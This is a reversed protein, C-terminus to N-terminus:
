GPVGEVAKRLSLDLKKANELRQAVDEWNFVNFLAEFFSKKDNKYQLYFAHEWADIVLLPVGGMTVDSQHDHIITTGLRKCLPDWVLAGWGSGMTGMACAVIQAKFLDFSKFDREILQALEGAPKGGGGPKMNQWFISHLVHGSVNFALSRELWPINAFDNKERAEALKQITANAGDVYARHHKGHHLELIKGSYHPELAGFDYPLDPLTYKTM